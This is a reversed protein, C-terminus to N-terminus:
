LGQQPPKEPTLSNFILAGVIMWFVVHMIPGMREKWGSGSGKPCAAAPTEASSM